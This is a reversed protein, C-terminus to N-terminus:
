KAHHIEGKNWKEAAQYVDDAIVYAHCQNCRLWVHQLDWADKEVSFIGIGGCHPCLKIMTSTM